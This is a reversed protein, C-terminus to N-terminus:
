TNEKQQLSIANIKLLIDLKPWIVHYVKLINSIQSLLLKLFERAHFIDEFHHM